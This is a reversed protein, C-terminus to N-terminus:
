SKGERDLLEFDNDGLTRKIDKAITIAAGFVSCAHDGCTARDHERLMEPYNAGMSQVERLLVALGLVSEPNLLGALDGAAGGMGNVMGDRWATDSDYARYFPSGAVDAQAKVAHIELMAAAQRLATLSETVTEASETEVDDLMSDLRKCDPGQKRSTGYRCAEADCARGHVMERGTKM